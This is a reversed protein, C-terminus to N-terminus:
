LHCFDGFIEKLVPNCIHYAMHWSNTIEHISVKKAVLLSSYMGAIKIYYKPVHLTNLILMLNHM